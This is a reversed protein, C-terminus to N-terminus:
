RENREEIIPERQMVKCLRWEYSLDSHRYLSYCDFGGLDREEEKLSEDKGQHKPVDLRLIIERDSSYQGIRDNERTAKWSGGSQVFFERLACSDKIDPVAKCIRERVDCLCDEEFVETMRVRYTDSSIMELDGEINALVRTQFRFM